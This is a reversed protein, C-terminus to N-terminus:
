GGLGAWYYIYFYYWIPKGYLQDKTKHLNGYGYRSWKQSNTGLREYGNVNGKSSRSREHITVHLLPSTVIMYRDPLSSGDRYRVNFSPDVTNYLQM